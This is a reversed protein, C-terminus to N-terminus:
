RQIMLKGRSVIDNGSSITYLYLGVPLLSIDESVSKENARLNWNSVKHGVMDYVNINLVGSNEDNVINEITVKNNAPNPYVKYGDSLKGFGDSQQMVAQCGAPKGPTTHNWHTPSSSPGCGNTAEVYIDYNTSYDFLGDPNTNPSTTTAILPSMSSSLSWLYGTAGTVASIYADFQCSNGTQRMSLAGSPSSPVAADSTVSLNGVNSASGSPCSGSVTVSITGTGSGTTTTADTNTTSSGSLFSPTGTTTSWVYSNTGVGSVTTSATYTENTNHCFTTAGIVSTTNPTITFTIYFAHSNSSYAYVDVTVTIPTLTNATVTALVYGGNPQNTLDTTISSITYGSYTCPPSTCTNSSSGWQWWGSGTGSGDVYYGSGPYVEFELTSGDCIHYNGNNSVTVQASAGHCLTLLAFALAGRRIIQKLNKM